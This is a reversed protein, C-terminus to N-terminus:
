HAMFKVKTEFEQLKQMPSGKEWCVSCVAWLANCQMECLM